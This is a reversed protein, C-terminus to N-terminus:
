YVPSPIMASKPAGIAWLVARSSRNVGSEADLSLHAVIRLLELSFAADRQAHADPEIGTRHDHAANAVVQAHVIGGDTVRCIERSTHLLDRPGTRNDHALRRLLEHGAKEVRELEAFHLHFAVRRDLGELHEAGTAASCSEVDRRLTAERRIDATSTLEAREVLEKALHFSV